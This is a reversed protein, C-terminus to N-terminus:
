AIRLLVSPIESFRTAAVLCFNASSFDCPKARRARSNPKLLDGAVQLVSLSESRLGSSDWSEGSIVDPVSSLASSLTVCRLHCVGIQPKRRNEAFIQPKRRNGASIQPKRRGGFAQIELLLPSDAFIQPKRRLDANQVRETVKTGDGCARGSFKEVLSLRPAPTRSLKQAIDPVTGLYIGPRVQFLNVM